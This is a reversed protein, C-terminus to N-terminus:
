EGSGGVAQAHWQQLVVHSVDPSLLGLVDRANLIRGADVQVHDYATQLTADVQVHYLATQLTADPKWEQVTCTALRVRRPM